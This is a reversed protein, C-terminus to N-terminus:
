ARAKWTGGYTTRQTWDNLCFFQFWNIVMWDIAPGNSWNSDKWDIAPPILNFCKLSNKTSLEEGVLIFTITLPDHDNHLGQSCLGLAVIICHMMFLYEILKCFQQRASYKVWCLRSNWSHMDTPNGGYYVIRRHQQLVLLLHRNSWSPHGVIIVNNLERSLGNCGWQYENQFM